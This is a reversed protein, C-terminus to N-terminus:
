NLHLYNRISLACVGNNEEVGLRGAQATTNIGVSQNINSITMAQIGSTHFSLAENNTTGLYNGSAIANGTTLWPTQAFSGLCIFLFLPTIHKLRM